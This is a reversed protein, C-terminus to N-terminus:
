FKIEYARCNVSGTGSKPIVAVTDEGPVLRIPWWQDANVSPDNTTATTSSGSGTAYRAAADCQIAFIKPMGSTKFPTGTTLNNISAGGTAALTGLYTDGALASAGATLVAFGILVSLASKRM